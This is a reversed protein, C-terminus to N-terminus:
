KINKFYNFTDKKINYACMMPTTKLGGDFLFGDYKFSFGNDNKTLNFVNSSYKHRNKNNIFYDFLNFLNLGAIQNTHNGNLVIFIDNNVVLATTVCGYENKAFCDDALSIHVKKNISKKM